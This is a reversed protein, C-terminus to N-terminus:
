DADVDIGLRAAARKAVDLYPRNIAVAMDLAARTLDPGALEPRGVGFLPTPDYECALESHRAVEDGFFAQVLRLAIEFSGTAPGSTIRNRDEVVAGPSPVAGYYRLQDVAHFNTTARYGNLLGAAGMLLSGACTGAVWGARSGRDALFELTQPDELIEAPVAGAYLVDLDAPTEDFTATARTPFAPFGIIEDKDKWVLHVKVGPLVGLVTHLGVIDVPMFGPAVVIAIDLSRGSGGLDIFSPREETM